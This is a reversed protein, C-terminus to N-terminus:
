DVYKIVVRRDKGDGHSETAIHPEDALAAHVVMREYASMPSMEVNYKLSRAREALLQATKKLDEIKQTRYRNVDILFRAKEEGSEFTKRVVHNLARITDGRSGILKASDTTQIQFVTQGASEEVTVADYTVDLKVLLEEIYKQIANNDM